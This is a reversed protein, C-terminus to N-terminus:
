MKTKFWEKVGKQVEEDSLLIGKKSEKLGREINKKDKENLEQWWDSEGEKNLDKFVKQITKLIHEDNTEVILRHLDNKIEALSM